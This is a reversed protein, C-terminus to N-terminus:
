LFFVYLKIFFYCLKNIKKTNTILKLVIILFYFYKIEKIREIYRNIVFGM